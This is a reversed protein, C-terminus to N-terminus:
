MIRQRSTKTEGGKEQDTKEGQVQSQRFGVGWGWSARHSGAGVGTQCLQGLHPSHSTQSTKLEFMSNRSALDRRPRFMPSDCDIPLTITDTNTRFPLFAPPEVQCGRPPLPVQGSQVSRGWVQAWALGGMDLAQRSTLCGAWLGSGFPSARWREM